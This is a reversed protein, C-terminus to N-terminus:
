PAAREGDGADMDCVRDFIVTALRSCATQVVHWDHWRPHLNKYEGLETAELDYPMANALQVQLQQLPSEGNPQRYLRDFSRLARAVSADGMHDALAVFDLYDRTANRRLILVSKIRLM